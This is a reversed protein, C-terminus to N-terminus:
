SLYIAAKWDMSSTTYPIHQHAIEIRDVFHGSSGRISLRRRHRCLIAATPDPHGLVFHQDTTLFSRKFPTWAREVSRLYQILDTLTIANILNEHNQVVM